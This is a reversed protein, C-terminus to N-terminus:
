RWVFVHVCRVSVEGEGAICVEYFDLNANNLQFLLQEVLMAISPQISDEEITTTVASPTETSHHNDHHQRGNKKKKMEHHPNMNYNYLTTVLPLNYEPLGVKKHEGDDLADIWDGGGDGAATSTIADGGEMMTIVDDDRRHNNEVYRVNRLVNV